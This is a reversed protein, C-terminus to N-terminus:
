RGSPILSAGPQGASKRRRGLFERYTELIHSPLGLRESVRNMAAAIDEPSDVLTVNLGLLDDRIEYAKGM